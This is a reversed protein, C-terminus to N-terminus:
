RHTSLLTQLWFMVFIVVRSLNTLSTTPWSDYILLYILAFIWSGAALPLSKKIKRILAVAFLRRRKLCDPLM